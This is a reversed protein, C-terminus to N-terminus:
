VFVRRVMDEPKLNAKLAAPLILKTFVANFETNMGWSSGSMKTAKTSLSATPDLSVMEPTASFTIFQHAWPPQAIESLLISLAVAPYIPQNPQPSQLSGMSGSVDCVAIANDLTGAERVRAVMSRWQEDVVRTQMEKLKAEYKKNSRAATMAEALLENPLLTAGSIKKKGSAVDLIYQSFREEDHKFFIDKNNKMCTSPVRTYKIKHWEQAAMAVEPVQLFRRLPSTVWRSYAIRLKHANEQSLPGELPVDSIPLQGRHYLLNAIATAINTVRDHSLNLSPAWKGVLTLEFSMSLKRKPPTNPQAIQKLIDIDRSLASAFLQAVCVYLVRFTRDNELKDVLRNHSQIYKEGHSLSNTNAPSTTRFSRRRIQIASLNSDPTLEDTAALLLINLLDKWYGHPLNVEIEDTTKKQDVGSEASPDADAHTIIEMDDEAVENAPQSKHKITQRVLPDVLNHLNAIATKPHFRYLWAFALYFTKRASKGHHISRLNWIIRLTADPDAQWSLDLIDTIKKPNTSQSLSSFADLTPSLTSKFAAAGNWTETQNQYDKLADLFPHSLQSATTNTSTSSKSPNSPISDIIKELPQYLEPLLPLAVVQRSQASSTQSTHSNNSNTPIFPYNNYVSFQASSAM